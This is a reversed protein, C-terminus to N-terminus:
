IKQLKIYLKYANNCPLTEKFIIFISKMKFWFKCESIIVISKGFDCDLFIYDTISNRLTLSSILLQRFNHNLFEIINWKKLIKKNELM